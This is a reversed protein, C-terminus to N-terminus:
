LNIVLKDWEVKKNIQKFEILDDEIQKLAKFDLKTNWSGKKYLKMAKIAM